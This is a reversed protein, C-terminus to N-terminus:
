RAGIEENVIELLEEASASQIREVADESEVGVERTAPTLLSRLRADAKEREDEPLSGLMARLGDIAADVASGRGEGALEVLFGAVAEATPYDFVLTAPLQLGAAAGLRNRLEVASLSDFGLDKFAAQPDIATASDHGLVTAVHSRVLELAIGQREATPAAALRAALAGAGASARRAPVRVLGSFLPAMTGLRAAARLPALDLPTAILHPRGLDRSRDHMELGEADTFKLLGGRGIRAMDVDSLRGTQESKTEWGGWGISVGALGEARRAHALADLFANAAAYNGQGAHQFTGAVSSCLVLECGPIERTLQHLHWAAGAKAAITNALREPDLADIVGDDTTGAVHLVATLPHEPPVAEILQALQERDAVDCARIEVEAGLGSLEAVLEEAGGAEAGRRSVLLLHRAGQDVLHRAFLSGLTGTAGTILVTGEPDPPPAESDPSPARILRPVRAAGERLAIETEHESALARDLAVASAEGGDSDLLLFRGPHEAQASRVLGWVAAAAPDASEGDAVAVAGSTLFAIRAAAGEGDALAEQMTALVQECLAQAAAAPDLAPDPLCEVQRVEGETRQEPLPLEDWEVLFLSNAVDDRAGAGLQAAEIPRTAVSGVSVVAEGSLDTALMSLGAVGPALGVRMSAAGAGHLGVGSWSFPVRMGEGEGAALIGPQLAADLLAPHVGFRGSEAAQEEDLEVEAFLEEGRRWASKLGQFAPGYEIGLEVTHAYFDEIGVPEAGPPPWEGLGEARDPLEDGLAGSAHRRWEGEDDGEPRAHIELPRNGSEPDPAGVRLQLQAAGREPLILPAEITLEAVAQAGAQEAAALALELFGTGPLLAAGMLAHDALWPHTQLSVRGTLLWGEEGPLSLAAGLFPHEPDSQGIAAPEGAGAKSDIWYRRRQFPYTPLPVRRRQGFFGAWDVEVGALHVSALAAAFRGLDGEERRLTGIAAIATSRAAACEEVAPILVPHASAEVFTEFGDGLLSEVAPAFRVPERMSRYWYEAGLETGELPGGTLASYFPLEAPRPSIPALEELLRERVPEVLASHSPSDLALRRAAIERDECAQSLEELAEVDGSVVTATPSNQAALSLREGWPEILELVGDASLHVSVMGGRGALEDRLVQSRLAAIRAADELSLAGAVYAAAIEGQSHGLVAAPEVGQSRWLGALSVMVAFLAPQIVDVRESHADGRLVDRLSFDVYPALAEACADVQAAFVPSSALLEAGMGVWQPGQGPFLFAPKGNKVRGESLSPHPQGRGLADLAGLLQERESGTAAARHPLGARTAALTAAVDAPDLELNARLHAALRAGQERLADEGKASLLLPTVPLPDPESAPEAAPPEELIVHANTGSIGFSSVGARRPRGNAEWAREESLLEVEGASWDVHPTPEDLHLTRPLRGHRMALAMKIVGAVGAAAQAHGINSKISGLALPEAGERDQGYTALIAGAEIPDGLVTGTGHAEVADVESASLGANALAQRIVREQAPGNPATLGNSAGDQNTASGRLLAIPTHGNARADSLRELLVLGVGESFGAGDAAAAFSKCRGDAALGRQRSIEVFTSPTSLVTVGGALALECEGGRLAQAALHMAVLSSSCATDVTVAPGELGFSYAVRGSLVSSANGIGHYGEADGGVAGGLGYDHYMVGAFVGTSSGNLSAPEVGADECAEWAAELLLRQQPDMAVAERPGIGFFGADFGAVDDLFGGERTYSTGPHDPDPDYLRELNWGRDEPFLSIGDGGAAVLEWLDRPSAVGGPYRCSMGVIAIPEEHRVATKVAAPAASQGSALEVLFGAVAEASPYDFVLTAPLRLGSAAGLRNRLEVASLSDFGLDKFAATPDIATASDHGLVTAVHSRVLELAIGEREGAPAAALRAALAGTGAQARRAPARVLSSFLPAMTGLRAAARLAGKDLSAAILHPRGLQRSRDYMALGEADPFEVIGNRHLRALDLDSLRGTQESKTEWGGWGISSGGLGEAQRRRALADLFANAAAYNGQGASQFSGTVSSFLILECGPIERTLQHLHWAAGAKPAMTTALRVPDLSDIVGDDTTGAAHVVATLPHAAPIAAILRELQDRDAVDCARLEAEAGQEKLEALLEGAGEAELGRRSVLLLHRVGHEGVLHRALLAGLTGTAGTLLVTGEPDLPVAQSDPAPAHVLRPVRAAGDRLVIETETEIALAAELVSESAEGGDSDLLLFRGPHEAQASRVLGWVAAAAPDPSEEEAVAVAGRTLFAIRAQEDGEGAIAEQLTSLAQECLDQAAAAPDLGPAAACHVQRVEGGESQEPLSLEKWEVLFLSNAVGAGSGEGLQAGDIARTALSGVSVLAEGGSDALLLSLGQEGPALRARTAAAGAGHLRTDGWSFPVRLGEGEPAGLLGLHLAADLLAPHVGFREAEAAQEEDLEVEAFLEEGRRWAAKLGQFAPGYDVGLDAAHEYFSDIEVTEAGPPPWETLPEPAALVQESLSGSAHRTWEAEEEGEPRSHIQLPRNGSDPGPAGVRLQLQVAGQEPLVLPAELTLEEIAVAGALETAKLALELFATGPLIATGLLVHDALWPHTQLSVRGTLLWGEEGPLSVAAGLFPHEPDSQGIAAPEGGRASSELWFRQRQFPYTPLPVRRRLGFFKPWDIEVGAVQAAALAATFRAPGGQERRLSGIAAVPTPHEAACEEVAPTLVPHASAEVFTEFGDGLLSEVAPAFRVPERLSRYWYEAGLETGELPGGTLASYFPLAAPRPSIPALEELLRERITEVQASHSAYDVAVERARIEKAACAELLQALAGPEGSLVSSVPSNQAALGISQGWPEILELVQEAPLHVSVMGGKGALEAALLRSRLAVVRAADELSLAGAVHAAAIEGQSHGLVAAPEVGHSRWLGALSVMVAFLAPQIVDVRESHADGRLVDRLSFDVYPALAEECADVHTAFVPSRELLEAGMGPWQSGQGPFLFAASGAKARGQILGAHAEGRGLADLAGLIEERGSGIAAARHVLGARTAALAAAVDDLELEPNQRLHAALREGQERLAGEGKASLLLPTVPLPEPEAAREPEPAPAEELILHANTGSIGFSSVGARRPRGNAEWAREESLLEVEGAAWDVHPTPEELHLTRPLRGHRMALAMKIVGAVGAAAQAHGINSKISGLALPAAGDRGQGYTALIAGAEIPDGLVTGTGHAEVADVESASLGANALAQRIVREQAPGNPATLGNSAGDQNTASGRLLALVEHGNRRADSLRELLVLGVGESFGAGDAGAAFSKSRGDPALGRQRSLEVFTGPTSLVTVGGALALGCEGGRLAQAALHMAVLSSSCATDVTVAPGELGFSYAVRGSVVSGSAVAGQHGGLESSGSGGLGYDHHMVGAFVGTDSGALSAPDIAADEFTEWAAELLLRQQPDMTRAERPGIGFFGADFEAADHLFGGERTYSTGPHDPDPDYLRELDWGRDEPFTSIADAGSVVLEWLDQPSRVGGPYRCGIGVIAIPEETRPRSRVATKAARTGGVEEVLFRAVAEASPYDFVLTAPLQLGAAAGLRNRLEVAALSDFGLDKFPATPDIAGGSPHGLVAAVQTRVLELAIEEREAGSAAALRAALSGAPARSSVGRVLGGLLPALAGARAAARLVANDLRVPLLQSRGLARARDFAGLGEEDSLLAIGSRAGRARDAESLRATMESEREWAGWGLSLAPLGEDQRRQALADLFANAAAYNGQGPRQFTGALSSFLILECGPTGATLEHLHWAAGAKPAITNALREPDLDGILSDDTVGAVHLVATLPHEAPIAAILRELQDRDAVDCARLEAEAGQERLEALLEEAGDAEPGRRSVLLLHRAGHEAVLHRAFLSGLSGTAGTLLVTGEPDLPEPEAEAAPAPALRPAAVTGERLALQPESEIALASALVAESAESGDRDILVFRGPHEAQASGALGWVAAAAPDPSEGAAVAVAGRTLFAIRPEADDEAAIAAQLTSLVQECLAQAAAAPDLDPDPVCEIQRVETEGAGQEPLALESWDVVFLSRGQAAEAAGLQEASVPRTLLSEAQAVPTGESDAVLLSLADPAVPSPALRVRLTAAGGALLRLNECAFAMRLEATGELLQAHVAADLLAPHVGFRGAEAAQAQDLEVEAFLEEGRLWAAKLGQFAPGYEIGLAAADDYFDELAIAKAGPPPWEGLPEPSAPARDSLSGSANRTWEAASDDPNEPRSHIAISRGGGEDAEGVIVQVQVAGREPLVLPVELMLERVTEAGVQQAAALALELFATGPLIAKALVVHDALWPHTQLSIRGSLLWGQEGPLRTAAALFPHDVADMGSSAVRGAGHTTSEIWYRRRQFPYTPLPVRQRPGFFQTWDVEAGELHAGALAATLTQAEPREKRLLPALTPESEAGALCSAAMATLVADPGLELFTSVGAAALHEIGAGFRVPERVQAVWYAPDTAQEPSLPEGSLNSLIPIQPERYTLSSAVEEFAELMPEMLESHFAHSVRLRTAKRGKQKWAEALKLAAGEEGSLVVSTPSNVAALSLGEPLNALVEEESAEIAVMAGGEPLAGMLAGRAAILRCADALDLVGALHAAALEGISHGILFDPRVGWSELLRFLAVEIAFLAPQTFETRDLLEAEESGDSAFLLGRLPQQLHPDFEACVEDLATAFTPFSEYLEKGMGARQAGQGSLLFALKGSGAKGATLSPHSEGQALADLVELLEETSEGLAAARHPLGARTAALTAAVDELELEPNERLHAALRAGQERLAGEGKASLLLPTTPLPQGLEGGEGVEGDRVEGDRIRPAAVTAPAEELILHANTGSAGFSSIGARRPKGNAEWEREESLLEVEGASWDVHPTPEDLHLTRPLRGHRMAMAMKIVGAVGAAAQAHGINSKISGLALPAGNRGQGYTSLIAQAEIPDGLVTGTGHAEVADVEAPSLGANALAQRIVREQSPGNPATVGNSAGDQNTASGRLLALVEHGNARADSLRELLVLGVGESLGTGDAAAAFSKCRGDRALGRQRSFEVFTGPTSLVTVGGALALKCEGARLAQAALHMAVLSSSCATDVTVAPGELGFSYAVRGSVAAGTSVAGQYGGWEPSGAGDLGYDHHMVGAFVGTASGALSAPDVGANELAEWATELLLRQQPDMALAERPGVGFFAADFGGAEPLFGGDRAYSCGLRDPDPDYLRELDWGRDEPFPAIADGGSAVLEWLDQPSAVGGPYRCSMGVIAIPEEHRVATRVAAPVASQGGALEVLFGAVAEASPYDFVLTAPLQLGSAAALRNRLEVASLSDFGLDKFAAKSDIAEGSDHGLVTAVQARVQEIAIDRHEAAPAEGLRAALSAGVAAGARRAPVRVLGSFLPAMTGLRAAARLAGNDLTVAIPHPRGVARSRDYLRLGDAASFPLVGNRGIRALDVDSLRATLESKPEWGGWGISVGALGEGRRAHSLADLFANAAAYNGQGPHQFSGAISSFLVLECGEIGATLEHLAWAAGAKPAITNALREPDLSDILGDDTVGAVHLVAALPHEAPIAAILQELQDRDAVDGAVVEVQAGLETLEERLEEAGAAEPGRRSVLLLHRAGHEGVLHRALLSGITGTAGTILVTGEPDPFTAEGEPDPARILRPALAAGERLGIETEGDIALAAELAARSDESDDTDVLLFRGPHEAQASRVLGWVAAAAPDPSEGEGVAVAGRTLFAIRTGAGEGDAIAEQLTALVQECLAQAAAPPDLDPDPDCEIQRVEGGEGRAPPALQNWEVLFLSSGVGDGAGLQQASLPRTLLSGAQAVTTGASDAVLLSLADPSAPSPALRVRLVTAGSALLRLNTCAFAMRLEATEALLQAHVAADLLAPHVGFRGAEAAQESDLEVEAFLEEGRRWAAKLGQFAPGYEVGLDGARGYFDEIPVAEAGAPPWEGIPQLDEPTEETLSGTVHRQWEAEGDGEPRSHIEIPRNGSEPDPAGVRLQLQVAGQEPLVLPAELTLEEVAEAGALEVAKLALELFGTGPLIASGMVVHEALWPHTQLSIRGTLLWGEEGPLFVAAGLFPHDPDSQGIAAPEGSARASSQLWFRQRQFPYTPLPVRRRRGFFGPWDVEVGALHAAALAATFRAPGGEGRRLTAIATVNASAAAACEEVAPTLSAHASAEVFTEFGDGFLSEVAAAFRVPERMSRYWYDAGLETGDLPAGTMSSYFPMEVARPSVPALEELVRERIAEIQASHSACDLPLLRASVGESDCAVLLEELGEPDGSVVTAVPSNLAALSLREGWPEILAAAREAPLRTLVMGGKGALEAELVRSRIAVVRAADDLSLAGAVHAAAIEGQSHGLVAGPEVGQSRWLGVLSVMMTFLAPQIIRVRESHADGRLVDRLSFDVYPALAQECAEVHRAFVPSRELLEAGMGVWQAAQGPFLFAAKGNAARGQILSPHPEGRGLADLAELQEERESGIAAARHTLAARASVLAAGVDAPDLEANARLHAALRAGQERLAGEGKASLLLPTAPLSEPEGVEGDKIHPVAVTAPAEELIVHANTGSIGFSSIGARRPREGPQWEREESLLEVEGSSWDVHPTPQGLHLSRPLKGHRLAMAMKIVGAVGAAAQAHGLNSKLSGLALPGAEGRGQGYTALVAQAEIPDGLATGTGHAEVADVEAPSLGANTLAQRIVREQSPGNPATLGNSAGDQNTASGRVLALVEHGNAQADSLRELLLLGVGESWITGDAAASFAKARADRAITRQRSFETFMWPTSLVAVGGALALECEGTRLAQAALHMAVLSSSCATDVTVAPGELGFSYAVRGSVVSGSGGSARNGGIEEAVGEGYDHNMSGVFTGTDSGRLLAPAIGADEFTEWAAELLLRQQPDLALADRPSIGFFEADFEAVDAVFGGERVYSSGLRDSDPDYLRALDWGRDEPFPAIADAGADVLEWLDEPSAVGGPYRCSMGVIAIPEHRRRELTEIRQNADRLDSTVRRLYKSLTARDTV